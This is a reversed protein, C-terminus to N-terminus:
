KVEVYSLNAAFRSGMVSEYQIIAFRSREGATVDSCIGFQVCECTVKVARGCNSLVHVSDSPNKSRM